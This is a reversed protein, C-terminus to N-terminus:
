QGRVLTIHGYKKEEETNGFCTSKLDIIYYYVGEEIDKSELLGNWSCVNEALLNGWRSFIQMEVELNQFNCMDVEPRSPAYPKFVPNSVDGNPSFINPMIIEGLAIMPSFLVEVQDEAVCSGITMTVTYVGSETIEISSGSGAPNWEVEWWPYDLQLPITDGDCATVDGPLFGVPVTVFLVQLSDYVTFCSNEATAWYWGSETFTIEENASGNFWEFSDANNAELEATASSQDCLIMDDGVSLFPYVIMSINVSDTGICGNNNVNVIYEGGLLVDITAITQDNNWSYDYDELGGSLVITDSQCFIQDPGLDPDPIAYIPVIHSYELVFDDIYYFFTVEYEGIESFIHIPFDLTSTNLFGTSPDGFNWLVSDAEMTWNYNLETEDGLCEFLHDISLDLFPPTCTINPINPFYTTLGNPISFVSIELDCDAGLNNPANIVDLQNELADLLYIKGDPALRLDQWDNGDNLGAIIISSATISEYTWTELNYQRIESFDGLCYIYDSNSSFEVKGISFFSVSTDFETSIIDYIEGIENDFKMLCFVHGKFTIAIRSCDPSIRMDDLAASWIANNYYQITTSNLTVGENTVEFISFEVDGSNNSNSAIVWYGTGDSKSGCVLHSQHAYINIEKQEPLIAGNDGLSTSIVSYDVGFEDSRFLYSQDPNDPFPVFLNEKANEVFVGSDVAIDDSNFVQSGDTYFMIDGSSDSIASPRINGIANISSESLVPGSATIEISVGQGFHWNTNELQSFLATPFYFICCLCAAILCPRFPTKTTM